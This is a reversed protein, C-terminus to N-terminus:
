NQLAMKMRTLARRYNIAGTSADAAEASKIISSVQSEIAAAGKTPDFRAFMATAVGLSEVASSQMPAEDDNLDYKALVDRLIRFYEAHNWALQRFEDPCMALMRCAVALLRATPNLATRLDAVIVDLTKAADKQERLQMHAAVLEDAHGPFNKGLYEAYEDLLAASLGRSLGGKMLASAIELMTAEPNKRRQLAIWNRFEITAIMRMLDKSPLVWVREANGRLSRLGLLNQNPIRAFGVGMRELRAAAEHMAQALPIIFWERRENAISEPLGSETTMQCLLDPFTKYNPNQQLSFELFPFFGQMAITIQDCLDDLLGGATDITSNPVPQESQAIPSSLRSISQDM